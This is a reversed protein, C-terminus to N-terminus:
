DRPLERASECLKRRAPDSPLPPPAAVKAGNAGPARPLWLGECAVEESLPDAAIGIRFARDAADPDGAERLLRGRLAFWPGVVSDVDTIQGLRIRAQDTRGAGLEAKAARWRVAGETGAIDVAPDLEAAAATSYGRSLLLDGLRVRRVLDGVAVRTLGPDRPARQQARDAAPPPAAVLFTQWRSIWFKLPYGTVSRMASDADHPGIGKLDALLLQLAPEGNQDIWYAVFSTVEAFAITAAEPTPLMAISPGLKDVGVSRGALLAARATHSPDPERDFPRPARWRTEERKAVGEQLWLPAHDRTARSLALHTLEHAMTDEWPYGLATARPSIITVRGWRAVAVTGTTEAASLPLGSVASLSFLDRVLVIRLPRPLTVGLDEEVRGRARSVVDIIFPVLARDADDQLTLRIGHAADDVVSAGAITGACQRALDTLGATDASEVDPSSLIALATDCDGMYTALRAREIALGPSDVPVKDILERARVVDLETIADDIDQLRPVGLSAGAPTVTVAALAVVLWCFLRRSTM